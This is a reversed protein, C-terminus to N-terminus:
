RGRMIARRILKAKESAAPSESIYIEGDYFQTYGDFGSRKLSEMVPLTEKGEVYKKFFESIDRGIAENATAVLDQYSYKRSTLGYKQYMLRMLDELSKRGDTEDRIMVDLCFATAWGGDYIGLRYRGQKSGAEKLSAGDFAPSANFYFYLGLVKEMKKIYLDDSILGQRVLALNAFYETFGEAFWRSSAYDEAQIAHGNWSHFFEHALTVGWRILNDKTVPDHESFAASTSFAEADAEDAYFISMLYKSRRTQDFIGIYTLLTKKLTLAILDRSKEMAGLLALTFTFSGQTFTYETHKGLVISNNILDDNNEVLFTAKENVSRTQWPTSTKWSAPVDFTVSHNATTDSVIFLVKTVVYLANDQFTGAQENGYRWKTTTFSLDVEYSLKAKGDFRESIKWEGKPNAVFALPRGRTDSIQLKRLFTAWGDPLFDAGWPAMFLRGDSVPIQAEVFVHLPRDGAIRVHYSGTLEKSQAEVSVVPMALLVVPLLM